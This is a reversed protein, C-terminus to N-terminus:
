EEFASPNAINFVMSDMDMLREQHSFRFGTKELVRISALNKPHTFAMLNKLGLLQFSYRIWASTVETALGQNWFLQNVM